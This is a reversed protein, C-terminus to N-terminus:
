RILVPNGVAPPMRVFGRGGGLRLSSYGQQAIPALRFLGNHVLGEHAARQLSHTVGRELVGVLGNGPHLLAPFEEHAPGHIGPLSGLVEM